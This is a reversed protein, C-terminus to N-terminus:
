LISPNLQNIAFTLRLLGRGFGARFRLLPERISSGSMQITRPKLMATKNNKPRKIHNLNADIEGAWGAFTFGVWPSAHVQSPPHFVLSYLHHAM